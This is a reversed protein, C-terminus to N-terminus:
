VRAREIQGAICCRRLCYNVLRNHIRELCTNLDHIELVIYEISKITAVEKVPTLVRGLCVNLSHIRNIKKYITLLYNTSLLYLTISEVPYLTTSFFDFFLPFSLSVKKPNEIERCSEVWVSFYSEGCFEVLV